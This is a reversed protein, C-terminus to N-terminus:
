RITGAQEGVDVRAAQRASAAGTATLEAVDIVRRHGAVVRVLAHPRGALAGGAGAVAPLGSFGIGGTILAAFWVSGALAAGAGAMRVKRHRRGSRDLFVPRELGTATWVHEPAAPEVPYREHPPALAGVPLQAVLAEEHSV